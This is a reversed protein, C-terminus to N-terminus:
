KSNKIRSKLDSSSYNHNRKNYIIKIDLEKGTFDKNKYDSGIIRINIPLTSLLDLLDKETDYVIIEDVYSCANLQINRESISQTPKNKLPRDITPDYQLGVILYNCYQKAERFMEIHGAHLLDFSGCTFGIIKNALLLNEM